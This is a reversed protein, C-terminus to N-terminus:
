IQGEWKSGKGRDGLVWIGPRLGFRGRGQATWLCLLRSTELVCADAMRCVGNGWDRRAGLEGSAWYGQTVEVEKVWGAEGM